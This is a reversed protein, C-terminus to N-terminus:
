AEGCQLDEAVQTDEFEVGSLLFGLKGLKLLEDSVRHLRDLVELALLSRLGVLTWLHVVVLMQM